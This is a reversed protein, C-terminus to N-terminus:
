ASAAINRRRALLDLLRSAADTSRTGPLFVASAGAATLAAKLKSDREIRWAEYSRNWHVASAGTEAVFRPILELADGAMVHLVGGLSAKLAALSSDRICM